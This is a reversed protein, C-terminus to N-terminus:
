RHSVLTSRLLEELKGTSQGHTEMKVFSNPYYTCLVTSDVKISTIGNGLEAFQVHWQSYISKPKSQKEKVLVKPLAVWAQAEELQGTENEFTYLPIFATKRTTIIGQTKDVKKVALGHTRFLHEIHTWISDTSLASVTEKPSTVYEGKLPVLIPNCGHILIYAFILLILDRTKCNKM